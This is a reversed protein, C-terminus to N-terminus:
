KDDNANLAEGLKCMWVGVRNGISMSQHWPELCLSLQASFDVTHDCHVGTGSMGVSPRVSPCVSSCWPLLAVIRELLRMTRQTFVNVVSFVAQCSLLLIDM